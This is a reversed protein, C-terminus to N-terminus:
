RNYRKKIKFHLSILDCLLDVDIIVTKDASLKSNLFKAPVIVTWPKRSQRYALIPVQGKKAQKLTQAWWAPISLTEQRKIEIALQPLGVIDYGGERTQELNRSLDVELREQLLSIFEREGVQGKVRRGKGNM